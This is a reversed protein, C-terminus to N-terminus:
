KSLAFCDVSAALSAISFHQGQDYGKGKPGTSARPLIRRWCGRPALLLRHIPLVSYTSCTTRAAFIAESASVAYVGRYSM